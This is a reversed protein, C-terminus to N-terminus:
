VRLPSNAQVFERYWKGSQKLTRKQTVFDVYTIGFRKSYGNGWEFNDLLSWLFYGTLPVGQAIAASCAALHAELYARRPEDDVYGNADPQDAFAAGNETIYLQKAGYDRHLRLLLDTLAAPYVEWDTDTYLADPVHVIQPQGDEGQRVVSRTYYNVGLFDTPVAITEMDGPQAQPPDAAFSQWLGQPYGRGFLPDLFWRNTFLDNQATALRDAERDSAPYAPTLNLTIGVDADRSNARIIPVALGHSLLLHHSVQAAVNPDSLGPADLGRLHGNVTVVWPENQTIWLKVRDGLRRTVADTYAVFAEVTARNAWGGEDQLAQPLDWHCLTACPAINRGLLGDVLRDYFDLGAENVAGRGPPIIRPWAISFRYANLGLSAILDLDQAWRHYHDCAIAGSSGDNIKGPISAFRDWISEGRGDEHVAGEVQYASTAVGWKFNDAFQKSM